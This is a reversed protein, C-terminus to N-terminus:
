PGRGCFRTNRDDYGISVSRSDDKINRWGATYSGCFNTIRGFSDNIENLLCLTGTGGFNCFFAVTSGSMSWYDLGQGVAGPNCQRRLAEVANDTSSHDLGYSACQVSDESLRAFLSPRSDAARAYRDRPLADGSTDVPGRILTHIAEGGADYSVAYVGDQLNDPITFGNAAVSTIFVALLKFTHM